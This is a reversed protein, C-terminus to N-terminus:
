DRRCHLIDKTCEVCYVQHITFECFCPNVLDDCIKGSTYNSVLHPRTEVVMTTLSVAGHHGIIPRM